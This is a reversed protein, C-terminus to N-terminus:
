MACEETEFASTGEADHGLLEIVRLAMALTVTGDIRGYSKVKDFKRGGAPDSTAITNSMCWTLVPHDGHNLKSNYVARELADVCPSADKFGQGIAFLFKEDEALDGMGREHLYPKLDKIRYRDAGIGQVDFNKVCFEIQAAVLDYDITEDSETNIFGQESWLVFPVKDQNQRELIRRSPMFFYPVVPRRQDEEGTVPDFVATLCTLDTTGSLDLAMYCRRGYLEDYDIFGSCLDWKSKSILPNYPNARQNLRLGRYRAEGSPMSVVDASAKRMDKLSVISGLGPNALYWTKEDHPDLKAGNFEEPTEFVFGAVSLSEENGTNIRKCRDVKQSFIHLNTPAQTSMMITLPEAQAGFGSTLVSFFEEAAPAPVNGLEDFIVVAPNLGHARYADSSLVEFEVLSTIHTMHKSSAIIHFLKSIGLDEDQSIFRNVIKFTLGAQKRDSAAVYGNGTSLGYSDEHLVLLATMIGAILTTNHTPIGGRGALFLNDFADVAICKTPVSQVPVCDVIEVTKGRFPGIAHNNEVEDGPRYVYLSDYVQKTTCVAQYKGKTLRVRGTAGEPTNRHLTTWLHGGGATIVTGDSFHVDYCTNGHFVESVNTVLTPLGDSGLVYDGAQIEGMTTWGSPTPIPTDLSLDKANKRAMTLLGETVLRLKTDPDEPGLLCLLIMVQFSELAIKEGKLEGEVHKLSEIITVVDLVHQWRMHPWQLLHWPATYDPYAEFPFGSVRKLLVSEPKFARSDPNYTAKTFASLREQVFAKAARALPNDDM